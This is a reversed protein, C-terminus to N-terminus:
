GGEDAARGCMQVTHSVLKVSSQVTELQYMELWNDHRILLLSFSLTEGLEKQGRLSHIEMHPSPIHHQHGLHNSQKM